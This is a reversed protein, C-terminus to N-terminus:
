DPRVLGTEYALVVLQARGRVGLKAMARNVHARVTASRMYLKRAIEDNTLGSAVLTTVAREVQTIVDLEAARHPEKARYAFEAIIRRTMRPSILSDGQAAARIAGALDAPETNKALFGSAGFRLADFLYEDLSFTSLIVIHVGALEPDTAIRRIAKLAKPGPMHIDMLLVDPRLRRALDVANAEDSAEGIVAIDDRADLLVKIGARILVQEDALLVRIV